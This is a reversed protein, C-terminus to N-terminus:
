PFDLFSGNSKRIWNWRVSCVILLVYFPYLTSDTFGCWPPRPFLFNIVRFGLTLMSESSNWSVAPFLEQNWLWEPSTLLNFFQMYIWSWFTLFSFFCLCMSPDYFILMMTFSFVRQLWNSLELQALDVCVLCNGLIQLVQIWILSGWGSLLFDLLGCGCFFFFDFNECFCCFFLQMRLFCGFKWSRIKLEWILLVWIKKGWFLFRIKLLLFLIAYLGGCNQERMESIWGSPSVSNVFLRGRAIMILDCRSVRRSFFVVVFFGFNLVESMCCFRECRSVEQFFLMRVVIRPVL